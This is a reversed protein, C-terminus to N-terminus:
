IQYADGFILHEEPFPLLFGIQASDMADYAYQIRHEFSNFNNTCSMKFIM